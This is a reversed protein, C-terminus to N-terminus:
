SSWDVLDAAQKLYDRKREMASRLHGQVYANGPDVELAARSEAIAREIVALNKELIRLTNPDLRDRGADLVGELEEVQASLDEGHGEEEASVNSAMTSPVASTAAVGPGAPATMPRLAWGAAGTALALAVGAAALQGLSLRFTRRGFARAPEVPLPVVEAENLRGRIDPWLDRPPAVPGMERALGRVDELEAAVQACETCAGLHDSVARREDRPLSGDLYESLRALYYDHSANM